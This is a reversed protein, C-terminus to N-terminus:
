YGGKRGARVTAIVGIWYLSEAGLAPLLLCLAWKWGAFWWLLVTLILVVMDDERESITGM